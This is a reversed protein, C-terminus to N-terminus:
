DRRSYQLQLNNLKVVQVIIETELDLEVAVLANEPDILVFEKKLFHGHMQNFM